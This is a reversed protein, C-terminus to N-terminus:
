RGIQPFGVNCHRIAETKGSGPEGVVLYWPMSYLDKGAGRFKEIGSEFTRRLDDLRARKAPESIAGPAASNQAINKAFPSAKRKDLLKLAFRYAILLLGVVVVGILLIPLAKPMLITATALAGGAGAAAAGAKVPTAMNPLDEPTM